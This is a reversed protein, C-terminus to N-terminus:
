ASKSAKWSSRAPASRAQSASIRAWKPTPRRPSPIGMFASALNYLLNPEPRGHQLSRDPRRDGRGVGIAEVLYENETGAYDPDLDAGSHTSRTDTM